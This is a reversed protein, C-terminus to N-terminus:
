AGAGRGRGRGYQSLFYAQLAANGANGLGQGYANGAGVQGAATANAGQTLYDTATRSGGQSTNAFLNAYNLGLGSLYNQNSSDLSEQALLKAFPSDQNQYFTSKRDQFEGFAKNYNTKYTDLARGYTKEFENSGYDQGYDELAKATTGTLLSGRAAASRDIADQGAKLRTTFGPDNQDNAGTPAEFKDFSFQETFPALYDTAAGGKGGGLAESQPLKENIYYDGDAGMLKPGWYSWDEPQAGQSTYYDNFAQQAAAQDGSARAARLRSLPDGQAAGGVGPASSGQKAAYAKAQETNALNQYADKQGVWPTIDKLSGGYLEQNWRNLDDYTAAGGTGSGTQGGQATPSSGPPPNSDFWDGGRELSSQYTAM